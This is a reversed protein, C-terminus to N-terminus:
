FNEIVREFVDALKEIEEQTETGIAFRLFPSAFEKAFRATLYIRTTNFGFATGANLKVGNSRAEKIATDIFKCANAVVDTGPKFSISFIMGHFKANKTWEFCSHNALGPFNVHSFITKNLSRIKNELRNAVYLTNREFRELRKDLMKRNPKPMSIVSADPMNTGAHMRTGFINIDSFTEVWIVGGTVRDFGFQHLKNLSERVVLTLNPNKRTWDTYPQYGTALGSNDLVFVTPTTIIKELESLIGRLDPMVVAENNCLSDLFIASPKHIKVAEVLEATKREDIFIVRDGCKKELLIKNEFYTADGAIVKGSLRNDHELSTLITTFASMGSSTVYATVPVLLPKDIYARCFDAEYNEADLHHDLKYDNTTGHIKGTQTGAQSNHSHQYSPSQWDSSAVISAMVGQLARVEDHLRLKIEILRYSDRAEWRNRTKLATRLEERMNKYRASLDDAMSLLIKKTEPMAHSPHLAFHMKFSTLRWEADRILTTLEELDEALDTLTASKM